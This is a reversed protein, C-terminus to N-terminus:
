TYLTRDHEVVQVAAGDPGAVRLSRGYGEDLIHADPHGAAHLRDRVAELPEDAVFSLACEGPRRPEDTHAVDHVGLVGGAAALEVWRGDRGSVDTRLGLVAFFERAAAVDAVFVIPM